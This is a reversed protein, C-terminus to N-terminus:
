KTRCWCFLQHLCTCSHTPMNPKPPPMIWFSGSSGPGVQAWDVWGQRTAVKRAGNQRRGVRGQGLVGKCRKATFKGSYSGSGRRGARLGLVWGQKAVALHKGPSGRHSNGLCCAPCQCQTGPPNPQLESSIRKFVQFTFCLECPIFSCPGTYMSYSSFIFSYIVGPLIVSDEWRPM